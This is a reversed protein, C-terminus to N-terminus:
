QTVRKRRHHRNLNAPRRLVDDGRGGVDRRALALQDVHVSARDHHEVETALEEREVIAARVLAAAQAVAHRGPQDLRGLRPVVLVGAISM